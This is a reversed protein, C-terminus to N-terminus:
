TTIKLVANMVREAMEQDQPRVWVRMRTMQGASGYQGAQAIGDADEIEFPLNVYELAALLQRADRM